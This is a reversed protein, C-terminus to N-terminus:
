LGQRPWYPEVAVSCIMIGLTMKATFNATFPSSFSIEFVWYLLKKLDSDPFLFPDDPGTKLGGM